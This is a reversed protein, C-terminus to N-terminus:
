RYGAGIGPSCLHWWAGGIDSFFQRSTTYDFSISFFDSVEGFFDHSEFTYFVNFEGGSGTSLFLCHSKYTVVSSIGTEFLVTEHQIPIYM